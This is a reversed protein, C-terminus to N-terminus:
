LHLYSVDIQTVFRYDESGHLIDGVLGEAEEALVEAGAHYVGFKDTGIGEYAGDVPRYFFDLDVVSLTRDGYLYVSAVHGGHDLSGLYDFAFGM